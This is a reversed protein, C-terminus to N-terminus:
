VLYDSGNGPGDAGGAPITGPVWILLSNPHFLEQLAHAAGLQELAPRQPRRGEAPASASSRASPAPAAVNAFGPPLSTTPMPWTKSSM